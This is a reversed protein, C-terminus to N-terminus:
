IIELIIKLVCRSLQAKMSMNKVKCKTVWSMHRLMFFEWKNSMFCFLSERRLHHKSMSVFNLRSDPTLSRDLEQSKEKEGGWAAKALLSPPSFFFFFKILKRLPILYHKFCMRTDFKKLDTEWWRCKVRLGLWSRETKESVRKKVTVCISKLLRYNILLDPICVYRAEKQEVKSKEWAWLLQQNGKTFFFVFLFILHSSFNELSQAAEKSQM